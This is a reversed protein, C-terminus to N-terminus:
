VRAAENAVLRFMQGGAVARLSRVREAIPPRWNRKWDIM